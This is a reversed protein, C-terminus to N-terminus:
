LRHVLTSKTQSKYKVANTGNCQDLHQVTHRPDVGYNIMSKLLKQMLIRLLNFTLLFTLERIWEQHM